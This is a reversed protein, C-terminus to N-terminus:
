NKHCTEKFSEFIDAFLLVDYQLYIEHYEKFIKCKMEVYVRVDHKYEEEDLKSQKLRNNFAHIPPLGANDLKSIEDGLEYPYHGGKPWKIAMFGKRANSVGTNLTKVM